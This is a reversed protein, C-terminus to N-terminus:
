NSSAKTNSRILMLIAEDDFADAAHRVRQVFVPFEGGESLRKILSRIRIIDGHMALTELESLIEADPLAMPGGIVDEAEVAVRPLSVQFTTGEGLRSSVTLSGAMAAILTRSISLGLGAGPARPPESRVFPEFIREQTEESMGVGDDRISIVWLQPEESLWLQIVGAGAHKLANTLLNVLVQRLRRSDALAVAREPGERGVELRVGREEAQLQFTMGVEQLLLGLNVHEQQVRVQGGEVLATDMSDGLVAELHLGNQLIAQVQAKREADLTPNDTLLRAYSLIVSLPNRLEHSLDALFRSKSQSQAELLQRHLTEELRHQQETLMTKISRRMLGALIATVLGISLLVLSRRLAALPSTLVMLLSESGSLMMLHPTAAGFVAMYQASCWVGLAISLRPNLLVASSVVTASWLLLPMDHVFEALEEPHILYTLLAVLGPLTGTGLWVLRAARTTLKRRWASWSMFVGLPMAVGLLGISPLLPLPSSGPTGLWHLCWPPVVVLVTFVVEVVGLIMIPQRILRLITDDLAQEPLVISDHMDGSPRYLSRALDGARSPDIVDGGAAPQLTDGQPLARSDVLPPPKDQLKPILTLAPLILGGLVLLAGAYSDGEGPLWTLATVGLLSGLSAGLFIGMMFLGNGTGALADPVARSAAALMPSQISAYGVGLLVMGGAVGWVPGDVAAATAGCGLGILLLGLGAMRRTYGADALRGALPAAVTMGLAGPLLVLGVTLPPLGSREVLFIPTLVLSGFRVANAMAGLLAASVFPANTMLSPPLFPAEIRHSRWWMIGLLGFAGALLPLPTLPGLSRSLTAYLMVGVVGLVFQIAGIVDISATSEAEDVWAPVIWFIAPIALIGLAPTLFVLRWSGIEVLAGGLIPGVSAAIGIIGALVGMLMGRNEAPTLRVLMTAGLTPMAAAGVGQLVRSAILMGLSSAAANLLALLSFVVVGFVYLRRLGFRDALRGVVAGLVGFTLMFGSVVWGYSGADASFAEGVFPLAVNIMTGNSVALFIYFGLLPLLRRAPVSRQNSM